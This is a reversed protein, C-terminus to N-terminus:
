PLTRGYAVNVATASATYYEIHSLIPDDGRLIEFLMRFFMAKRAEAQSVALDNRWQVGGTQVWNLSKTKVSNHYATLQSGQNSTIRTSGKRMAVFLDWQLLFVNTSYDHALEESRPPSTQPTAERPSEAIMPLPMLTAKDLLLM